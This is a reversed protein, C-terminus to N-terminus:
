KALKVINEVATKYDDSLASTDVNKAVGALSNEATNGYFTYEKAGNTYKIYSRTVFTENVHDANNNQLGVLVAAFTIDGNDETSTIKDTVVKGNEDLKYAAGYAYLAKGDKEFGFTLEEGTSELFTKRTTIIGYESAANKQKATVTAKFRISSTVNGDVKDIRMEQAELTVPKANEYATEDPTDILYIAHGYFESNEAFHRAKIIVKDEYVEVLQGTSLLKSSIVSGTDCTTYTTTMNGVVTNHTDASLDVHTHSNFVVTNPYKSLLAEVDDKNATESIPMHTMIFATNGMSKADELQAEVFALQKDSVTYSGTLKDESLEPTSMFIYKTGYMNAAYWLANENETDRIIEVTKNYNEEIYDVQGTIASILREPKFSGDKNMRDNQYFEHNGNTLFVPIGHINLREDIYSDLVNWYREEGVDTGETIYSGQNVLDGNIVVFDAVGSFVDGSKEGNGLANVRIPKPNQWQAYFYDINTASGGLHMDSVAYFTYLPTSVPMRHSAPIEFTKTVNSVGEGSFVIELATVDTVFARNGTITYSGFGKTLSATGFATYGELVGNENALYITATTYSASPAILSITGDAVGPVNSTFSYEVSQQNPDEEWLAVLVIDENAPTVETVANVGDLSWGAFKYGARMSIESSVTYKGDTSAPLWWAEAPATVGGNADYTVKYYPVVSVNDINIPSNIAMIVVSKINESATASVDSGMIDQTYTNNWTNAASPTMYKQGWGESANNMKNKALFITRREATNFNFSVRVKRDAPIEGLQTKLTFHALSSNLKMFKNTGDAELTTTGATSFDGIVANDFTFADATGTWTNIGPKAYAKTWIAVLTIDENAPTVETVANVGDVSWGAFDYGAKTPVTASVTYKGGATQPLWWADAPAGTGGNADYTVKYYPVVSVDDIRIKNSSNNSQSILILQKIDQTDDKFISSNNTVAQSSGIVDKSYTAWSTTFTTYVLGLSPNFNNMTNRVLFVSKASASDAQAKFSVKVQRDKDIVPLSKKLAFHSSSGSYEMYTNSGNNVLAAGGYAYYDNATTGEFTYPNANGTWVNIGPKAATSEWVAYLTIDSGPTATVSTVVAGGATLSWGAFKAGTKTLASGDDLGSYTGNEFYDPAVTGTGGNANYNVKYYPVVKVDDIYVNSSTCDNAVMIILKKIDQTDDTGGTVAKDAGKIVKDVSQWITAHSALAQQFFYPDTANIKNRIVRFGKASGSPILTKFSVRVPRDMEVVPLTKSITFHPFSGAMNMYTNTGNTALTAGGHLSFDSAKAGDFTYASTTGTWMNLGPKVADAALTAEYAEETKYVVLEADEATDLVPLAFSVCSLLM